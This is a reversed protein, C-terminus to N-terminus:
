IKCKDVRVILRFDDAIYKAINCNMEIERNIKLWEYDQYGRKDFQVWQYKNNNAFLIIKEINLENYVNSYNVDGDSATLAGYSIKLNNKSYLAVNHHYTVGGRSSEPYSVYPLTLISEGPRTIENLLGIYKNDNIIVAKDIFRNKSYCYLELVLILILIIKFNKIKKNKAGLISLCFIFLIYFTIFISIRNLARINNHSFLSILIALGDPSALLIVIFISCLFKKYNNLTHTNKSFVMVTIIFLIPLGFSSSIGENLYSKGPYLYIKERLKDIPIDWYPPIFSTFIHYGFQFTQELSRAAIIKLGIGDGLFINKIYPMAQIVLVTLLISSYVAVAIFIKKSWNNNILVSVLIIITGITLYYIGSLGITLAATGSLLLIKGIKSEEIKNESLLFSLYVIIPVAWYNALHIHGWELRYFHYPAFEFVLALIMKMGSDISPFAYSLVLFASIGSMIFTTFIFINLAYFVNIYGFIYREASIIKYNFFDLQPYQLYSSLFPWGRDDAVLLDAGRSAKGINVMVDYIDQSYYSQSVIPNDIFNNLSVIKYVIIM